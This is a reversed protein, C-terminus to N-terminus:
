VFNKITDLKELMSFVQAESLFRMNPKQVIESLYEQEYQGKTPILISVKKLSLLEMITTYGGRSIIMSSRNLLEELEQTSPNVVFDGNVVVNPTVIKFSWDKEKFFQHMEKQFRSREPEPGSVIVLVDIDQEVELKKFRSLFGIHFVPVPITAKTLEGCIPDIENDPIWCCDFLSIFSRILNRVRKKFLPIQPRLQHTIFINYTEDTYFGFRNDSIVVDANYKEVLSNAIIHEQRAMKKMGRFQALIQRYTSAQSDLRVEYGPIKECILEPFDKKILNLQIDIGAFIVKCHQDLLQRIIPICRTAHGMGWDLPAVIVTKDVIDQPRM